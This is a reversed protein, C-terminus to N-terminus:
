TLQSIYTHSNYNQNKMNDRHSRLVDIGNYGASSKEKQIALSQRRPESKSEASCTGPMESTALSIQDVNEFKKSSNGITKQLSLVSEEIKKLQRNHKEIVKNMKKAHKLNLTQIQEDIERSNEFM